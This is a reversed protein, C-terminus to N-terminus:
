NSSEIYLPVINARDCIVNTHKPQGRKQQEYITFGIM